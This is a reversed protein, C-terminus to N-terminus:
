ALTTARAKLRSRILDFQQPGRWPSMLSRIKTMLESRPDNCVVPACRVDQTEFSGFKHLYDAFNSMTEDVQLLTECPAGEAYIADNCCGDRHCQVARIARTGRDAPKFM